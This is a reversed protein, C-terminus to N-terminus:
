CIVMAIIWIAQAFLAVLARSFRWTKQACTPRSSFNKRRLRQESAVKGGLLIAGRFYPYPRV